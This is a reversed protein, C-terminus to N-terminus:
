SSLSSVPTNGPSSTLARLASSFSAFAWALSALFSPAPGIRTCPRLRLLQSVDPEGCPAPPRLDLLELGVQAGGFLFLFFQDGGRALLDVSFFGSAHNELAQVSQQHLGIFAVKAGVLAGADSRQLVQVRLVGDRGFVM